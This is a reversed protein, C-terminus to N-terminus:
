KSQIAIIQDIRVTQFEFQFSGIKHKLKQRVWEVFVEFSQIQLLKIIEKGAIM